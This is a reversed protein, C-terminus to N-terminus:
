RNKNESPRGLMFWDPTVGTFTLYSFLTKGSVEFVATHM